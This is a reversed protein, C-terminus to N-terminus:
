GGALVDRYPEIDPGGDVAGTTALVWPAPESAEACEPWRAALVEAADVGEVQRVALTRDEFQVEGLVMGLHDSHVEACSLLYARDEYRFQRGGGVSDDGPSSCSLLVLALVLSITRM